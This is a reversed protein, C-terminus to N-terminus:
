FIKQVNDCGPTFRFVQTVVPAAIIVDDILLYNQSVLSEVLGHILTRMILLDSDDYCQREVETVGKEPALVIAPNDLLFKLIKAEYNDIESMFPIHKFLVSLTERLDKEDLDRISQSIALFPLGREDDKRFPVDRPDLLYFRTQLDYFNKKSIEDYVQKISLELHEAQDSHVNINAVAEASIIQVSGSTTIRIDNKPLSVEKGPLVQIKEIISYNGFDEILSEATPSNVTFMSDRVPNRTSIMAISRVDTEVLFLKNAIDQTAYQKMWQMQLSFSEYSDLGPYFFNLTQNKSDNKYKLDASVIFSDPDLQLIIRELGVAEVSQREEKNETSNNQTTNLSNMQLELLANSVAVLQTFLFLRDADSLNPSTQITEGLDALLVSLNDVINNSNALTLQTPIYIFTLSLVVIAVASVIKKM